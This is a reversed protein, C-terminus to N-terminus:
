GHTNVVTWGEKSLAEEIEPSVYGPPACCYWDLYNGRQLIAAILDGSARFTYLVEGAERHAWKVNALASWIGQCLSDEKRMRDGFLRSLAVEFSNTADIERHHDVGGMIIKSEAM